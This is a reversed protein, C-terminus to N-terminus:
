SNQKLGEELIKKLDGGDIFSNLQFVIEYDANLLVFTPFALTGNMQGLATALEHTGTNRGSPRYSFLHDRFRVAEKQAGDFSIFYYKQNLLKIVSENKFTTQEMNKCFKCWEAHLFVAVPRQEKQMLSDIQSFRYHQLAAPSPEASQRPASCAAALAIILLYVIESRM